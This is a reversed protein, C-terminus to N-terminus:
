EQHYFNYAKLIVGRLDELMDLRDKADKMFRWPNKQMLLIEASHGGIGIEKEGCSKCPNVEEKAYDAEASTKLMLYLEENM